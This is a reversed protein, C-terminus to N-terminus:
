RTRHLAPHFRSYAKHCADRAEKTLRGLLQDLFGARLLEQGKSDTTPYVLTLSCEASGMVRLFRCMEQGYVTRCTLDPPDGAGLELFRDLSGRDPFSGEVLDALIIHSARVGAARDVTTVRISGWASATSNVPIETVIADMEELFDSWTVPEAGRGLRDLVLAHDDLSDWLTDLSTAGSANLGLDRAVRRLQAVHGSWVRAQEIPGLLDFLKEVIRRAQRIREPSNRPHDTEQLARDLERLLQQRGRFASTAQIVSAASALSLRDCNPWTPRVQGNRLLRVVQETEWEQLPLRAAARLASVAPETGLSGPEDSHPNLAWSRLVEVVLDAQESWNPFLVLIEDTPVGARLLDRVQCAVMRGTGEGQPRGLCPCAM